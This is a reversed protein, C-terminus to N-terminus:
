LYGQRAAYAVVHTRNRLDLRLMLGHLVNKVSRESYNLEAAVDRTELGDALLKVIDVERDTLGLGATAIRNGNHARRTRGVQKLLGGLLDAPIEGAGRDAARIAHLMRAVTAERRRVVAVVGSEITALLQAELLGGIVMVIPVSRGTGWKRAVALAEDDVSDTCLVLVDLGPAEPDDLLHLEPCQRLLATMGAQVVPDDSHVSVSIHNM